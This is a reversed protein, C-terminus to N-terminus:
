SLKILLREAVQGGGVVRNEVLDVAERHGPWVLRSKAPVVTLWEFAMHEESLKVAAGSDAQVAFVPCMNVTDRAVDYFSNVLPLSWLHLPLLGAEERLERVAADTGREGEEVMGTIIQWMGPHVREHMARQMILYEPRDNHLRFVVVEIVHCVVPIM